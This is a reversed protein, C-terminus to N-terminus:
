SVVPADHLPTATAPERDLEAKKDGRPARDTLLLWTPGLDLQRLASTAEDVNRLRTGRPVVLVTVTCDTAVWEGSEVTGPAGGVRIVLNPDQRSTKANPREGARRSKGMASQQVRELRRAASTTTAHSDREVGLLATDVQNTSGHDAWHRLLVAVSQDPMDDLDSGPVGTRRVALEIDDVRVDTRELAIAGAVGIVIGGILAAVALAVSGSTGETASVDRSIVQLFDPPIANRDTPTAGALAPGNTVPGVLPPNTLPDNTALPEDVVGETVADVLADRGAIAEAETDGSFSVEILSSDPIVRLQLDAHATALDVDLSEAVSRMIRQDAPILQTYQQALRGAENAGGPGDQGAGSPVFLIATAQYEATPEPLVFLTAGLTLAPALVLLWWRRGLTHRISKM